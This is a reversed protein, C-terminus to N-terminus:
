LVRTMRDYIDKLEEQTKAGVEATAWGDYKIEALAKLVAPWDEDGDGIKVWKNKNSYGKFDFKLMRPGLARIWEAPPVGFKIMNSVDFYGGVSPTGFEDIYKVFQEPKTIFDNWVVEIAIKVGMEDALPIAKRIEAQSRAWVEDFSADKGVKGPVLLVTTAGYFKADKLATRLAELGRERVAPDPDSLRDKWHVSDIVGHIKVGTKESAKIAQERDIESPSNIECGEFGVGKMIEFREGVSSGFNVGDYKMAKKLKPRAEQALANFGAGLLTAGAAGAAVGFLFSRRTQLPKMTKIM